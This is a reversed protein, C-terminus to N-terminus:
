IPKHRCSFCNILQFIGRLTSKGFDFHKAANRILVAPHKQCLDKLFTQDASSDWVNIIIPKLYDMM